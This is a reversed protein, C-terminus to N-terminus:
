EDHRAENRSRGQHTPVEEGGSRSHSQEANRRPEQFRVTAQNSRETSPLSRNYAPSAQRQSEVNAPRSSPLLRAPLSHRSETERQEARMGEQEPLTRAAREYSHIVTPRDVGNVSSHARSNINVSRIADREPVTRARTPRRENSTSGREEQSYNRDIIEVDRVPVSLTSESRNEQSHPRNYQTRNRELESRSNEHPIINQAPRRGFSQESERRRRDHRGPLRGNEAEPRAHPLYRNGRIGPGLRHTENRRNHSPYDHHFRFQRQHGRRDYYRDYYSHRYPAYAHYRPWAHRHRHHLGFYTNPYFTVGYFFSPAYFPDYYRRYLPWLVSYYDSWIVYDPYHGYDRYGFNYYSSALSGQSRNSGAYYQSSSYNERSYGGYTTCGFLGASLLLIMFRNM